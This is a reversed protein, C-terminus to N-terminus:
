GTKVCSKCSVCLLDLICYCSTQVQECGGSLGLRNWYALFGSRHHELGSPKKQPNKLIFKKYCLTFRLRSVFVVEKCAAIFLAQLQSMKEKSLVAEHLKIDKVWLLKTSIQKSLYNTQQIPSKKYYQSIVQDLQSQAQSPKRQSILVCHKQNLIKVQSVRQVFLCPKQLVINSKYVIVKFIVFSIVVTKFITMVLRTRLKVQEPGFKILSARNQDTYM